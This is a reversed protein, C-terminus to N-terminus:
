NGRKSTAPSPASATNASSTRSKRKELTRRFRYSEAGTEIIHARDTIRDILAKCLRANPIVQTWESFPLNSTVIVAAKEAREAVVQFLFEAGVEALPVYGVEDIAILDYRAWRAMTRGLQLQHKAEVLENILAAATAFRVRRKQRCAAVALGTLLHTKGTGSDGIFIIPEARAIYGGNALEHIQQPSVKPCQSYDFEELTKMRPLHAERIRREVLRHERDELETQLLAELFGLHTRHERVAQEALQACQAAVTPLHLVKCQQGITAAELVATQASM